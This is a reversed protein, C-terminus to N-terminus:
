KEARALNLLLVLGTSKFDKVLIFLVVKVMDFDGILLHRLAIHVPQKQGAVLAVFESQRVGWASSPTAVPSFQPNLRRPDLAVGGRFTFLLLLVNGNRRRVHVDLRTVQPNGRAIVLNSLVVNVDPLKLVGARVLTTPALISEM